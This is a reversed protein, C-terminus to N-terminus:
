HVTRPKLRGLTAKELRVQEAIPSRNPDGLPLCGWECDGAGECPCDKDFGFAAVSMRRKSEMFFARVALYVYGVECPRVSEGEILVVEGRRFLDVDALPVRGFCHSSMADSAGAQEEDPRGLRRIADPLEVKLEIEFGLPDSGKSQRKSKKM